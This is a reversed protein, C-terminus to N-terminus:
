DKWKNVYTNIGATVTTFGQSLVSTVRRSKLILSPTPAVVVPAPAMLAKIKNYPIERTKKLKLYLDKAETRDASTIFRKM